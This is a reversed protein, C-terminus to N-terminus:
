SQNYREAYAQFDLVCGALADLPLKASEKLIITKEAYDGGELRHQFVRDRGVAWYEKVGARRYLKKKTVLDSGESHESVIELVFDPAGECNKKGLVKNEDCVVIIDPRVVTKDTEDEAYFLRVDLEMYPTCEKGDLQNGLQRYLNGCLWQHREDPSAMMCPIGEILEARFGDDWKKYNGYTYGDFPLPTNLWAPHKLDEQRANEAM